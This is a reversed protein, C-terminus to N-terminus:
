RFEVEFNSSISDYLTTRGKENYTKTSGKIFNSKVIIREVLDRTDMSYNFALARWNKQLTPSQMWMMFNNVWVYKGTKDYKGTSLFDEMAQFIRISYYTELQQRKNEDYIIETTDQRLVDCQTIECYLFYGEPYKDLLEKQPDLWNRQINQLTNYSTRNKEIRNNSSINLYINYIVLLVSLAAINRISLDFRRDASIDFRNIIRNGVIWILIVFLLVIAMQAENSISM